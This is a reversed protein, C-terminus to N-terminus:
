FFFQLFLHFLWFLSCCIPSFSLNFLVLILCIFLIAYVMLLWLCQIPHTWTVCTVFIAWDYASLLGPGAPSIWAGPIIKDYPDKHLRELFHVSRWKAPTQTINTRHRWLIAPVLRLQLYDQPPHPNTLCRGSSYSIERTLNWHCKKM